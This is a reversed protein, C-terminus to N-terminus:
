ANPQAIRNQWERVKKAGFGLTGKKKKARLITTM